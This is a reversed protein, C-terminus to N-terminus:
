EKINNENSLKALRQARKYNRQYENWKDRNNELYEAIKEKNEQRYKRNYEYIRDSHKARYDRYYAVSDFVM